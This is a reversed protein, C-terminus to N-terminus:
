QVTLDGEHSLVNFLGNGLYILEIADSLSGSISGGTGSTTTSPPSTYIQGTQEVAVLKSGDGSSAVSAWSRNPEHPTWSAGSDSSTYIQGTYVAAALKSGDVSSALSTWSRNSERPTWSVGSDSSVYIKGAWEDAVLKSGDASSAV